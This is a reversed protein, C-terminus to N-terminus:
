NQDAMDLVQDPVKGSFRLILDHEEPVIGNYAEAMRQMLNLFYPMHEDTRLTQFIRMNKFFMIQPDMDMHQAADFSLQIEKAWEDEDVIKQLEDLEERQVGGDAMALAYLINGFVKLTIEDPKKM